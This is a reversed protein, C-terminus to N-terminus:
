KKNGGGKMLIKVGFAIMLFYIVMMILPRLECFLQNLAGSILGPWILSFIALVAVAGLTALFRQPTGLFFQFYQRMRLEQLLVISIEAKTRKSEDTPVVYESLLPDNQSGKQYFLM